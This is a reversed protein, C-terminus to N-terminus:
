YNNIYEEYNINLSLKNILNLINNRLDKDEKKCFNDILNNFNDDNISYYYDFINDLIKNKELTLLGSDVISIEKSINFMYHYKKVLSLAFSDFTTIYSSDILDLEKDLKASIINDRIREKMEESAAKTFTM